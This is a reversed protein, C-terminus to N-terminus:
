HAVELRKVVEELRVMEREVGAALKPM